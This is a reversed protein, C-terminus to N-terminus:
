PAKVTCWKRSDHKKGIVPLPNPVKANADSFGGKGPLSAVVWGEGYKTENDIDIHGTWM